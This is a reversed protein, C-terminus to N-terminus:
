NEQANKLMNYLGGGGGGGGGPSITGDSKSPAPDGNALAAAHRQSTDNPDYRPQDLWTQGTAQSIRAQHSEITLKFIHSQGDNTTQVTDMVGTRIRKFVWVSAGLPDGSPLMIARWIIANRGQYEEKFIEANTIATSPNNPLGVAMEFADSGTYSFANEGIDVLVGEVISEFTNGDLEIEGSGTPAIPHSGTWVFITESAFELRMMLATVINASALTAQVEPTMGPRM